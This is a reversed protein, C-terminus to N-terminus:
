RDLLVAVRSPEGAAPAPVQVSAISSGTFADTRLESVLVPAFESAVQVQATLAWARSDAKVSAKLGPRMGLNKAAM